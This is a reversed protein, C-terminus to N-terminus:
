LKQYVYYFSAVTILKVTLLALESDRLLLKLPLVFYIYWYSKTTEVYLKDAEINLYYSEWDQGLNVKKQSAAYLLVGMFIM